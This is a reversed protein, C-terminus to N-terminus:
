YVHLLSFIMPDVHPIAMDSLFKVYDSWLILAIIEKADIKEEGKGVSVYFNCKYFDYNNHPSAMGLFIGKYKASFINYTDNKEGNEYYFNEVEEDDLDQGTFMRVAKLFDNYELPMGCVLKSEYDVGM